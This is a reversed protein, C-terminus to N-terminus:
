QYVRIYDVEMSSETFAPDIDGGFTGGIAVNMIFFFDKNFPLTTNNTVSHFMVDDVFFRIQTATWEIAYVHFDDSVGPVMTSGTRSNGAFNAPDHTSGFIRDQQNGVHEMIDIEGAGPWPNELFDGGLMWIAPWTGGGTPLKARAEVRGYTFEFNQATQIRSSTYPSGNFSETRATIRLLGDEVIVNEPRDTYYQSEGNGWGNDGTGIDYNWTNPDPAGNVDFEESWILTEFTDNTSTNPDFGEPVFTSYWALPDDGNFPQSIGRLILRNESLELIEYQGPIVAWYSLFSTGVDLTRTGDENDLIAFEAAFSAQDTIDRCEDAFQQPTADPFFRNVETWNIFVQNDAGPELAYSYNDNGDHSFVLVDDYLCPNLQDIGASFFEPFKNTLPGVGFHGAEGSNWVWRKTGDGAILRLTEEDIFLRVDLDVQVTTSSSVGGSGFAIVTIPATFQGSSTYRFTASEGPSVVVPDAGPTFIVHFNLANDATPTVTVNGSQDSAVDTVVMLNSPVVIPDLSPEDEQCGILILFLIGYIYKMNKMAINKILWSCIMLIIPAGM